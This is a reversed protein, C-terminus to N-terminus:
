EAEARIFSVCADHRDGLAEGIGKGVGCTFRTEGDVFPADAVGDAVLDRFPRGRSGGSHFLADHRGHCGRQGRHSVRDCREEMIGVHTDFTITVGM